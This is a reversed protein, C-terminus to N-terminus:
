TNIHVSLFEGQTKELSFPGLQRLREGYSLNELGKIM